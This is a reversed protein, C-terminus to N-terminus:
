NDIHHNVAVCINFHTMRDKTSNSFFFVAKKANKMDLITPFLKKLLEMDLHLNQSLRIKAYFASLFTNYLKRNLHMISM